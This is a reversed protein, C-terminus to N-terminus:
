YEPQHKGDKGNKRSTNEINEMNEWSVGHEGMKSPLIACNTSGQSNVMLGHDHYDAKLKYSPIHNDFDPWFTWLHMVTRKNSNNLLLHEPRYASRATPNKSGVFCRQSHLIPWFMTIQDVHYYIIYICMVDIDHYNIFYWM